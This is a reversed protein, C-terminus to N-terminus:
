KVNHMNVPYAAAANNVIFTNGLEKKFCRMYHLDLQLNSFLIIHKDKGNGDQLTKIIKNKFPIKTVSLHPYTVKESHM